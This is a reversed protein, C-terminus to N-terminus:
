EYYFKFDKTITEEFINKYSAALDFKVKIGEFSFNDIAKKKNMKNLWPSLVQDFKYRYDHQQYAPEITVTVHDKYKSKNLLERVVLQLRPISGYNSASHIMSTDMYCWDGTREQKFMKMHELDLIYSQEGTLNLHWRNDIDAHSMYSEGPALKIIRAEGIQEGLTNLIKDWITGYFEDKIEWADYFFNGTPKNLVTVEDEIPFDKLAQAIWDIPCKKPLKSIM